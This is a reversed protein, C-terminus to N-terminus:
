LFFFEKFNVLAIRVTLKGCTMGTVKNRNQMVDLFETNLRLILGFRTLFM